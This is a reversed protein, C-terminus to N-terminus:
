VNFSGRVIKGKGTLDDVSISSMDVVFEGGKFENNTFTLKASEFTLTGFHSKGSIQNGTWKVSSNDLDVTQQSFGIYCTLLLLHLIKKM